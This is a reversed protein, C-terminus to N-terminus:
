HEQKPLTVCTGPAPQFEPQPQESQSKRSHPLLFREFLCWTWCRTGHLRFRPGLLPPVAWLCRPLQHCASVPGLAM